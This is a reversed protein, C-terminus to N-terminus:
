GVGRARAAAVLALATALLAASGPEPIAAIADLDFGASGAGPYTDFIPNGLSDLLSGDGSVDIVRVYRIAGLDVAGALVPALGALAGLDFDDFAGIGAFGAYLAPDVLDFAGVPGPVLSVAPFRAFDLGNSSVEVFGLDNFNGGFEPLVLTNEWVRLDPGPLDAIPDAFSVALTGNAGLTVLAGDNPGLARTPDSLGPFAGLSPDENPGQVFAVVADAFRIPVAGAPTHLASLAFALALFRALRHRPDPM